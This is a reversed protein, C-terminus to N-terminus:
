SNDSREEHAIANNLTRRARVAASDVKLVVPKMDWFENGSMREYCAEIMPKDEENFAQLLFNLHTKDDLPSEKSVGSAWFYHTEHKTKPTLIHAAWNVAGNEKKDGPKTFWVELQLSAPLNWRMDNYEDVAQGKTPFMAEGIESNPSSDVYYKSYIEQEQVEITHDYEYNEGGFGPHIYRTHSLDLLNDTILEYNSKVFSHGYLFSLSKDNHISYDPILSVDFKEKEGMWIWIINDKEVIPFSNLYASKPPHGGEPNDVCSGECNFTLGHYGCQLNNGKIRGKSLPAFRHPCRDFLAALEGDDGRYIVIPIDIIKRGLPNENELEHVWGAMYWTNKLAKM